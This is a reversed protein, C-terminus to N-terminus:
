LNKGLRIIYENIDSHMGKKFMFSKEIKAANIACALEHISYVKRAQEKPQANKIGSPGNNQRSYRSAKFSIRCSQTPEVQMNNQKNKHLECSLQLNTTHPSGVFHMLHMLSQSHIHPNLLQIIKTIELPSYNCLLDWGLIIDFKQNPRLPLLSPLNDAKGMNMHHMFHPLNLFFAHHGLSTLYSANNIQYAGLDLIRLSHNANEPKAIRLKTSGFSNSTLLQEIAYSEHAYSESKSDRNQLTNLTKNPNQIGNIAPRNYPTAITNTTSIDANAQNLNFLSETMAPHMGPTDIFQHSLKFLPLPLQSSPTLKQGHRLQSDAYNNAISKENIIKFTCPKSPYSGGWYRVMQLLTETHCNQALRWSFYRISEKNLYCFIDWTLIVDYKEAKNLPSLYDDMEVILKQTSWSSKHAIAVDIFDNLSEFRIHSNQTKFFNLNAASSPGLDLIKARPKQQLVKHILEISPHKFTPTNKPSQQSQSPSTLM